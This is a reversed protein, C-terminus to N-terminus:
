KTTCSCTTKETDEVPLLHEAQAMAKGTVGTGKGGGLTLVPRVGPALVLEFRDSAELALVPLLRDSRTGM